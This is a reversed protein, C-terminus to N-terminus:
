HYTTDVRLLLLYSDKEKPNYDTGSLKDILGIIKGNDDLRLSLSDTELEIQKTTCSFLSVILLLYLIHKM